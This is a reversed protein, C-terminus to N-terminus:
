ESFLRKFFATDAIGTQEMEFAKQAAKVANQTDWDFQDSRAAGERLYGLTILKQKMTRILEGRAGQKQEEYDVNPDDYRLSFCYEYRVDNRYATLVLYRADESYDYRKYLDAPTDATVPVNYAGGSPQDMLQYGNLATGQSDIVKMPLTEQPIISSIDLDEQAPFSVLLHACAETGDLYLGDKAYTDSFWEPGLLESVTVTFPVTEYNESATSARPLGNEQIEAEFEFPQALAVYVTETEQVRPEAEVAPAPTPTPEEEVPLPFFRTIVDSVEPVHLALVAGGILGAIVTLLVLLTSHRRHKKKTEKREMQMELRLDEMAANMAIVDQTTVTLGNDEPSAAGSIGLFCRQDESAPDPLYIDLRRTGPDSSFSHTTVTKGAASQEKLHDLAVLSLFEDEWAARVYRASVGKIFEQYSCPLNLSASLGDEDRFVSASFIRPLKLDVCFFLQYSRIVARFPSSDSAAASEVTRPFSKVSSICLVDGTDEDSMFHMALRHSLAPDEPDDYDFSCGTKGDAFCGTLQEAAFLSRFLDLRDEPLHKAAWAFLAEEFSWEEPFGEPLTNRSLNSLRSLFLGDQIEAPVPRESVTESM